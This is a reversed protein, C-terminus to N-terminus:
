KVIELKLDPSYRITRITAKGVCGSLVLPVKPEVKRVPSATYCQQTVQGASLDAAVNTAADCSLRGIITDPTIEKYCTPVSVGDPRPPPFYDLRIGLPEIVRGSEDLTVHITLGVEPQRQPQIIPVNTTGGGRVVDGESDPYDKGVRSIRCAYAFIISVALLFWIRM